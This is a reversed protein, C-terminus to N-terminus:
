AKERGPGACLCHTWLWRWVLLKVLLKHDTKNWLDALWSNWWLFVSVPVTPPRCATVVVVEGATTHGLFILLPSVIHCSYVWGLFVAANILFYRQVMLLLYPNNGCLRHCSVPAASHAVTGCRLNGFGFWIQYLVYLQSLILWKLLTFFIFSITM